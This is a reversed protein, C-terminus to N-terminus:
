PKRKEERRAAAYITKLDGSKGSVINGDMMRGLSRVFNVYFLRFINTFPREKYADWITRRDLVWVNVRCVNCCAFDFRQIRASIPIGAILEHYIWYCPPIMMLPFYDKNSIVGNRM